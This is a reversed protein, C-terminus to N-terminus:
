LLRERKYFNGANNDKAKQDKPNLETVSYTGILTNSRIPKVTNENQPSAICDSYCKDVQKEKNMKDKVRNSVEPPINGKAIEWYEKEERKAKEFKNEAKKAEVPATEVPNLKQKLKSLTKYDREHWEHTIKTKKSKRTM